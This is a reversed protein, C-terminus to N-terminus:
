KLLTVKRTLVKGRDTQLRIFYPGSSVLQGRIDVGQWNFTHVGPNYPQAPTSYVEQGLLNYIVVRGRDEMRLLFRVQITSNFPNPYCFLEEDPLPAKSAPVDSASFIIDRGLPTVASFEGAAGTYTDIRQPDDGSLEYFSYYVDGHSDAQHYTLTVMM